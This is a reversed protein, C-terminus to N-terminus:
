VAPFPSRSSAKPIPGTAAPFHLRFTTGVKEASEFEIRGGHFAVSRQAIALGLGTGPVAGVNGARFFPRFINEQDAAPIGRGHDVVDFGWGEEEAYVRVHVSKELGSYKLGNSILNEAAVKVLGADISAAYGPPLESTLVVRSMAMSDNFRSATEKLVDAPSLMALAAESTMHDIRNLDLVQDVLKNLTAIGTTQLNLWREAKEAADPSLSVSEKLLKEMLFQSGQIATLPTRFEHSVMSVFERQIEMFERRRESLARAEMELRELNRNASQTQRLSEEGHRHATEVMEIMTIGLCFLLGMALLGERLYATTFFQGYPSVDAWRLIFVSYGVHGALVVAFAITAVRRSAFLIAFLLFVFTFGLLQIGTGIPEIAKVTLGVILVAGYVTFLTALTMRNGAKELNGRMVSRLCAVAALGVILNVTIRPVVQPPQVWINKAVNVVVFAALLLCIAALLRAKQGALFTRYRYASDLKALYATLFRPMPPPKLFPAPPV